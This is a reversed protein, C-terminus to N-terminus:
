PKVVTLDRIANKVKEHLEAFLALWVGAGETNSAANLLYRLTHEQAELQEVTWKM